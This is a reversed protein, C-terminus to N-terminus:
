NNKYKLLTSCRAENKTCQIKKFDLELVEFLSSWFMLEHIFQANEIKSIRSQSVGIRNALELQTLGLEKRRRKLLVAIDAVVM